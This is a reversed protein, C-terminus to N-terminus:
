KYASRNIQGIQQRTHNPGSHLVERRERIVMEKQYSGHGQHDDASELRSAHSVFLELRAITQRTGVLLEGLEIGQLRLEKRIDTV